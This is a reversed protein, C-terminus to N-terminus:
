KLQKTNITNITTDEARMRQRITENKVRDFLTISCTRRWYSMEAPLLKQNTNKNTVWVESGYTTVSEILTKYIGKKTEKTINNNWLILQLTKTMNKGKGMKEM